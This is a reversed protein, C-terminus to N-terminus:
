RTLEAAAARLDDLAADIRDRHTRFSLVCARLVFGGDLTTATLHVRGRANVRALLERNLADLAAGELGPPHLRFAFLSLEPETVLEFPSTARLEDALYRALTLKEDLADRFPAIGLLQLPLWLRLGRFPRTLEPSLTAFDVLDPDAPADPLYDAAYSHARRLADGDRVLLAGTGYPLFLSKHPDLVVSDAREIGALTRRGRETLVFFGGYAADVHFWLGERRALEALEPLPDVAGTNTTGANGVVLFPQRGAARDAALMPELADLRLRRSSDSPVRRVAAAPFGALLAAKAVSHHTQDSVYLTGSQFQEPLRDRRATVLATLNALSGGSTLIGRATSPLGVMEGIWRVVDAELQALAPAAEFVGVYRNVTDAILDAVAAHFLGGGPIYALYGPGATNLSRPVAREFLLDLVEDLPRGSTPLPGRLERALDAGGATAAAPQDPLSEVHAILRELAAGVLQRMEEGSPELPWRPAPSADGGNGSM